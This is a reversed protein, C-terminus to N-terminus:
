FLHEHGVVLGGFYCTLAKLKNGMWEEEVEINEVPSVLKSVEVLDTNRPLFYAINPTIAKTLQFLARGNIPEISDLPYSPPQEPEAGEDSHHKDQIPHSLYSPGGWPPSLFVVDIRREKPPLQTYSAAFALYDGLIFEIRHDVGYIKANHKALALRTPSNDIAIVKLVRIEAVYVIPLLHVRVESALRQLRLLTAELV